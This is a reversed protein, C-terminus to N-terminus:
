QLLSLKAPELKFILIFKINVTYDLEYLYNNQSGIFIRKESTSCISTITNENTPFVFETKLFSLSNNENQVILLILIEDVTAIVM